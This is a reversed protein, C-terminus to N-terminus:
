DIRWSGWGGFCEDEEEDERWWGGIEMGIGSM